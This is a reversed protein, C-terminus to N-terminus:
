RRLSPVPVGTPGERAFSCASDPLSPGIANARTPPLPGSIARCTLGPQPLALLVVPGLEVQRLWIPHIGGKRPPLAMHWMRPAQNWSLFLLCGHFFTDDDPDIKCLVAKLQVPCRRVPGNQEALLEASWLKVTEHGLLWAAGNHHLGAAPCMEPCTLQHSQAM